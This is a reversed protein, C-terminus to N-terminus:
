RIKLHARLHRGYFTSKSSAVKGVSLGKSQFKDFMKAIDSVGLAHVEAGTTPYLGVGREFLGDPKLYLPSRSRAVSFTRYYGGTAKQRGVSLLTV